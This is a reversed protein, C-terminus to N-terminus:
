SAGVAVVECLNIDAHVLSLLLGGVHEALERDEAGDHQGHVDDSTKPAHINPDRALFVLPIQDPEPTKSRPQQRKAETAEKDGLLNISNNSPIRIPFTYIHNPHPPPFCHLYIHTPHSSQTPHICSGKSPQVYFDTICKNSYM